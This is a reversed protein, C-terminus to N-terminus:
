GPRALMREATVEAPLEPWLRRFRNVLGLGDLQTRWRWWAARLVECQERAVHRGREAEEARRLADQHAVRERELESRLRDREITLEAVRARSEVLAEQWAM